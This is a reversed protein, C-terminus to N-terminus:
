ETPDWAIMPSSGRDDEFFPVIIVFITRFEGQDRFLTDDVTLPISPEVVGKAVGTYGCPESEVRLLRSCMKHIGVPTQCAPDQIGIRIVLLNESFQSLALNVPLRRVPPYCAVIREEGM